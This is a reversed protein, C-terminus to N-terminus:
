EARFKPDPELVVALSRDIKECFFDLPLDNIDEGFPDEIEVGIEEVGFFLYSIFLTALVTAWGFDQVLAFPLTVCYVIVARRLHVMYPYPLPTTHIRECAGMYGVLQQLNQDFVQYIIDSILGRDHAQKLCMTLRTAVALGQHGSNLVSEVDRASLSQSQALQLERKGRLGNRIACAMLSTWGLIESMLVPDTHLWTRTLRAMNRSENIISGWIKRGEWFRDYSSNTRTVLLMGLAFGVMSHAANPITLPLGYKCALVIVASWVTCILVRPLIEWVMSGQIDFLHSDWDHPDYDIM